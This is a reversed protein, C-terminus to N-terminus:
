IRRRIAYAVRSRRYYASGTDACFRKGGGWGRSRLVGASELLELASLAAEAGLGSIGAAAAPSLAAGGNGFFHALLLGFRNNMRDM